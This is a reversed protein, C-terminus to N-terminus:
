LIYRVVFRNGESLCYDALHIYGPIPGTQMRSYFAGIRSLMTQPKTEPFPGYLVSNSQPRAGKWSCRLVGSTPRDVTDKMILLSNRLFEVVDRLSAIVNTPPRLSHFDERIISCPHLVGLKVLKRVHYRCIVQMDRVFEAAGKM